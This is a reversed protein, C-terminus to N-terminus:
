AEFNWEVPPLNRLIDRPPRGALEALRRLARGGLNTEGSAQVVAVRAYARRTSERDYAGGRLFLGGARHVEAACAAVLALAVGMGRQTPVVYLDSVQAGSTAWHMDYIRDWAVFGIPRGNAEALLVHHRPPETLVDRRLQEPTSGPHGAYSEEVCAMVLTSLSTADAGVARRIKM